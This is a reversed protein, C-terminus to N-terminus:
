KLVADPDNYRINSWTAYGASKWVNIYIGKWDATQPTSTNGDGNTDGKLEDDKLSTFYVGNGDYNGLSSETQLIELQSAESFKLVVNDGLTLSANPQIQIEDSTIVYAIEDELWTTNKNVNRSVFIGNYKNATGDKSFTNSNDISIDGTITLPLINDYFLNNQIVTESSANDAHITGIYYKGSIGGGNHAFTCNKIKAASEANLDLTPSAGTGFGGYYFECYNFVSSKTGNLDIKAWDGTAPSSGDGDKNTDGGKSDDKISTFVIPQSATGNALIQGNNSLTLNKAQSSFKIIAGAEITLVDEVYFDYKKIIYTKDGSWVTASKIDENIEIVNKDKNDDEPGCATFFIGLVAIAILLIYFYNKM